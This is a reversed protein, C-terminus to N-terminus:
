NFMRSRSIDSALGLIYLIMHCDLFTTKPHVKRPYLVLELLQLIRWHFLHESISSSPQTISVAKKAAESQQQTCCGSHQQHNICVAASKLPSNSIGVTAVQQCNISVTAPLLQGVTSSQSQGVMICSVTVELSALADWFFNAKLQQRCTGKDMKRKDRMLFMQSFSDGEVTKIERKTPFTEYFSAVKFVFLSSFCIYKRIM